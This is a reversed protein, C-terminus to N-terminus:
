SNSDPDKYIRLQYKWYELSNQYSNMNVRITSLQSELKKRKTDTSQKATAIGNSASSYESGSLLSSMGEYYSSVAKIMNRRYQLRALKSKRSSQKSAFNSRLTGLKNSLNQLEEIQQEIKNKDLLCNDVATQYYYIKQQIYARDM